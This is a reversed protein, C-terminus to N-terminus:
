RRLPRHDAHSPTPRRTAEDHLTGDPRRLTITRDPKCPSPGAAKTSTTTTASACRCCTTSTTAGLHEWCTVHHIRRDDFWVSLRPVWLGPRRGWRGVSSPPPLLRTRGLNLPVWDDDLTSRPSPPTAAWGASPRSPSPNATVPRACRTSTPDTVCRAPIPSCPSIPSQTSRHHPRRHDVRGPRRGELHDFDVDDGQAAVRATAVAADLATAIRADTEPDVQLHTHCM